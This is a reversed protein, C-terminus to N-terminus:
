CEYGKLKEKFAESLVGKNDFIFANTSGMSHLNRDEQNLLFLIGKEILPVYDEPRESMTNWARVMLELDEGLLASELEEDALPVSYIAYEDIYETSVCCELFQEFNEAIKGSNKYIVVPEPVQCM